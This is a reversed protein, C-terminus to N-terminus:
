SSVTGSRKGHPLNAGHISARTSSYGARHFDFPCRGNLSEELDKSLPTRRRLVVATLAFAQMPSSLTLRMVITRRDPLTVHLVICPHAVALALIVAIAPITAQYTALKDPYPSTLFWRAHLAGLDSDESLTLVPPITLLWAHCVLNVSSLRDYRPSSMASGHERTRPYCQYCSYATSLFRAHPPFLLM